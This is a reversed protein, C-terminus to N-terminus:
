TKPKQFRLAVAIVLIAVAAWRWMPNNLRVGVAFVILAIVGLVLKLVTPQTVPRSPDISAAAALSSVPL